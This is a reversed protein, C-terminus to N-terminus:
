AANSQGAHAVHLPLRITFKTGRGVESEFHISGGHKEVIVTHAMPLGQGTGRGVEKTTFFLDFVRPRLEEPIGCGTDEIDIEAWADARRTRITLTGMRGSGEGAADAIAHCANMVINLLAQNLEGPFSPVLPLSPDLDTVLDAVYKWESRAVILISEIGRNLDLPIRESSAPHSFEKMARVIEAIRQVGELSQAVARPMEELLYDLDFDPTGREFRCIPGSYGPDGAPQLEKRQSSLLRFLPELEEQLFRLNDGVYQVPTNIEHAVGAALHGIAELRQAQRLESEMRKRETIDETLGVIRSVSGRADHIPFSRGRLWRMSGDSRLMRFEEERGFSAALTAPGGVRQRDAPAVCALFASPDEEAISEVSRGWIREYGPSVYVPRGQDLDFIWLTENINEAIQRFVEDSERLAEESQKRQTIEHGVVSLYEVGRGSARHARITQLVAVESANADLLASEGCWSGRRTAIPIAEHLMRDNVWQPHLDTLNLRGPLPGGGLGILERAALNMYLLQGRPDAICVFDSLGDLVATLRAQSEETDEQEQVDHCTLVIGAVAPDALRNKASGVMTRWAGDALRTRFRLAREKEPQELIQSIRTKLRRLDSAHIPDFYSTGLRAAPPYGFFREASRNEYLIVGEADVITIAEPDSDFLSHSRAECRGPEQETSGRETVEEHQVLVWSRGAGSCRTVRAIFRREGEPTSCQYDAAWESAEGALVRAIGQALAHAAGAGEGSEAECSALYNDGPASCVRDSGDPSAFRRWADNVMVIAGDEDLVAVRPTAVVPGVPQEVIGSGTSGAAGVGAPSRYESYV